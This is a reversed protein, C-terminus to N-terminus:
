ISYFNDNSISVQDLSSIPHLKRWGKAFGNKIMQTFYSFPNSSKEPNFSRWYKVVDMLAFAICDKRDEEDRYKLRKSAENAMRMLLEVARPTLENLEKSKIIEDRLEANSVFHNSPVKKKVVPTVSGSDVGGLTGEGSDAIKQVNNTGNHM